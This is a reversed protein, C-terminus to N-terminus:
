RKRVIDRMAKVIEPDFQTGSHNDLEELALAPPMAPRYPRRGIMANFSDAVTVIRVALPIEGKDVGDPYGRGDLREHHSRVAATYGLTLTSDLVLQAGAITHERMIVWEGTTLDRPAHLIDVPTAIKGVDHLMGCRAVHLVESESLSLRRALRMCWAAVARSHEATLPDARELRMVLANIAADTEDLSEAVAPLGARPRHVVHRVMQEIVHLQERQADTVGHREMFAELSGCAGEFLRPVAPADAHADCMRDVWDVLPRPQSELMARAYAQVFSRALLQVILSREAPPVGSLAIATLDERAEGFAEPRMFQDTSM